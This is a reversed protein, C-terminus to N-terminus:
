AAAEEMTACLPAEPPADRPRGIGVVHVGRAQAPGRSRRLAGDATPSPGGSYSTDSAVDDVDVLLFLWRQLQAQTSRRSEARGLEGQQLKWSAMEPTNACGLPPEAAPGVLLEDLAPPSVVAQVPVQMQGLHLSRLQEALAVALAQNGGLM